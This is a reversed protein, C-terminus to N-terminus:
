KVKKVLCYVKSKDKDSQIEYTGQGKENYSEVLSEARSLRLKLNPNDSDSCFGFLKDQPFDGAIFSTNSIGNGIILDFDTITPIPLNDKRKKAIIKRPLTIGYETLTGVDGELGYERLEEETVLNNLLFTNQNLYRSISNSPANLIELIRKYNTDKLGNEQLYKAFLEANTM